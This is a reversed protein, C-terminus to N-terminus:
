QYPRYLWAPAGDRNDPVADEQRVWVQFADPSM